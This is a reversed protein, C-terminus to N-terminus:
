GHGDATDSCIRQLYVATISCVSMPLLEEQFVTVYSDVQVEFSNYFTAHLLPFHIAIVLIFMRVLPSHVFNLTYFLFDYVLKTLAGRGKSWHGVVM